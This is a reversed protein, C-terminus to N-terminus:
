FTNKKQQTVMPPKLYYPEFYAVSQFDSIQMKEVAIPALYASACKKVESWVVNELFSVTQCKEAGSGSLLLVSNQSLFPRLKPENQFMKDSVFHQFFDFKTINQSEYVAMCVEDRRADIMPLALVHVGKTPYAVFSARALAELTNIAILPKDLAFCLGKAVSAGVRLSTYGGPGASVAIADLDAYARGEMLQDIMVTLQEIHQNQDPDTLTSVVVGGEVLCVSCVETATEICLILQAKPM